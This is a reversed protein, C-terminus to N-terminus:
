RIKRPNRREPGKYDDAPKLKSWASRIVDIDAQLQAIRTFQVKQDRTISDVTTQLAAILQELRRKDDTPM